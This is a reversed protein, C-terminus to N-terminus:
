HVSCLPLMLTRLYPLCQNLFSESIESNESWKPMATVRCFDLTASRAALASASSAELALDSNMALMLWSSLVGSLATM